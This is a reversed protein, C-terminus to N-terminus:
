KKQIVASLVTALGSILAPVLFQIFGGKQILYKKKKISQKKVLERLSNRKKYLKSHDEQSLKINGSLLNLVVECIAKIQDKTANKILSKQIKKNSNTLLQLFNKNKLAFSM